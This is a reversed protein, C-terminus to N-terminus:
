IMVRWSSVAGRQVRLFGSGLKAACAWALGPLSFVADHRMCVCEKIFKASTSSGIFGQGWWGRGGAWDPGVLWCPKKLNKVEVYKKKTIRITEVHGRAREWWSMRRKRGRQEEKTTMENGCWKKIQKGERAENTLGSCLGLEAFWLFVGKGWEKRRERECLMLCPMMFKVFVLCVAPTVTPCSSALLVCLQTHAHTHWM